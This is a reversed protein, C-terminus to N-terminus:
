ICIPSATFYIDTATASGNPIDHNSWVLQRDSNISWSYNGSKGVTWSGEGAYCKLYPEADAGQTRIKSESTDFYMSNASALLQYQETSAVFGIFAYPYQELIDAPIPPLMTGNPLDSVAGVTVSSLGDYGADPTIVQETDTPTVTKAQLIPDTVESLESIIQATSLKNTADGTIRQVEEAIATMTEAQVKYETIDTETPANEFIFDSAIISTTSDIPMADGSASLPTINKLLSNMTLASQNCMQPNVAKNGFIYKGAKLLVPTELMVSKWKGKVTTLTVTALLEGAENWMSLKANSSYYNNYCRFGLLVIPDVIEFSYGRTLSSSGNQSIAPVSNTIAYQQVVVFSGFTAEEANPLDDGTVIGEIEVAMQEPTFVATTGKKERIADAIAAFSADLAASDVVKDFAM